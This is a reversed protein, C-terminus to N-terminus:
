RVVDKLKLCIFLNMFNCLGRKRKNQRIRMVGNKTREKKSLGDM